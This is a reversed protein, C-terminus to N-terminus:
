YFNRHQLENDAGAVLNECIRHFYQARRQNNEPTYIRRYATLLGEELQTSTFHPHRIVSNWVTYLQWDDHLIRGAAQLRERLRSGPFPTLLTLQTGLINNEVIFQVTDSITDENDEDLGLIFAGFVGIGRRQIRDIYEGYHILQREKWRDRNLRHLNGRSLSELGIILHRCGSKHLESLFPEDKAVSIDCQAFWSINLAKIGAVLKRSYEPNVFLNDDAFGVQARPWHDKVSLAEKIVQDIQKHKYARGYVNSAVCFECDHPCGRTSQIYVVPYHYKALLAYRPLPISAMKVPPYDSQQYLRKPSGAQYDRLFDIWANEAEGVIVTDVYQLAEDPLVTGHIGGMVVYRGRRRFEKAIEYARCAQQTMATIGVVDCEAEFSVSEQNEDIIVVEHDQPALAALTPLAAGIGSWFHLITRMDRSNKLFDSFQPSRALFDGRPSILLIRLKHRRRSAKM